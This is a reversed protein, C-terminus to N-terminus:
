RAGVARLFPRVVAERLPTVDPFYGKEDAGMNQRNTLLVIAMKSEPVGMVFTGTFGTHSFASTPANDYGTWGLKTPAKLFADITAARLVRTSGHMGGNLLVNMLVLLEHSTSFLGAHGAVGGNAYFSNGDNTEGDLVYTRWGDWAKPDGLYDYGFNPDYVMKKEYANGFETAAFEKLGRKKPTYLTSRLGLKAYLNRDVFTDLSEGTIKEVVYGVLMFSLDSYHRGEGVGWQLPMKRITEYTQAKTSGHYYLPQWQVLGATHTLLHRIRISDLHPGRFDPLYRYVPADIDLKSQDVLLMMAYTGAMVKTVSALDFVTSLQMTRPSALRRGNYDNLQAYGYAREVVTKGDISVALQAGPIMGSKMAANIASDASAIAAGVAATQAPVGQAEGRKGILLGSAGLAIATLLRRTASPRETLM